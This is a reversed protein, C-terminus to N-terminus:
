DFPNILTLGCSMFDNINRTALHANQALAIAAIQGDFLSMPQGLQKKNGMIKGYFHAASEDFALIHHHFAEDIAQEFALELATRRKGLPLTQLGYTIEAITISSIILETNQQQNIWNLVSPAPSKKMLESIVNTDLLIM